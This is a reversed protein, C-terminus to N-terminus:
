QALRALNSNVHSLVLLFISFDEPSISPGGKDHDVMILGIPKSRAYLPGILCSGDGWQEIFQPSFREAYETMRLVLFPFSGRLGSLM